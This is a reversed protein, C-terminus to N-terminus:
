GIVDLVVKWQGEEKRWVRMYCVPIMTEVGERVVMVKVKGWTVGMDGSAALDGGTQEFSFKGKEDLAKIEALTAAPKRGPRHLRAEKSLMAADFSTQKRNLENLYSKDLEMLVNHEVKVDVAKKKKELKRAPSSFDKKNEGPDYVASGLDAVVKWNGAENKKWVSAYYMGRTPKPDEREGGMIAPGTTYGFEGSSAVDAWVPWWFLYANNPEGEEWGKRGLVPEGKTFAITKDDFNALFAARINEDVSRQAFSKEAAVIEDLPTQAVAPSALLVLAILESRMKEEPKLSLYAHISGM